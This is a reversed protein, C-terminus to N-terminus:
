TAMRIEIGVCSVVLNSRMVVASLSLSLPPLMLSLLLSLSLSGFDGIGNRSLCVSSEFECVYHLFYHLLKAIHSSRFCLSQVVRGLEDEDGHGSALRHLPPQCTFSRSTSLSLYM